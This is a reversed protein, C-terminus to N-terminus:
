PAPGLDVGDGAEGAPAPRESGAARAPAATSLRQQVADRFAAAVERDKENPSEELATVREQMADLFAETAGKAVAYALRELLAAGAM